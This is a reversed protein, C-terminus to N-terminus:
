WWCWLCDSLYDFIDALCMCKNVADYTFTHKRKESLAMCITEDWYDMLPQQQQHTTPKSSDKGDDGNGHDDDIDGDTLPKIRVAVRIAEM